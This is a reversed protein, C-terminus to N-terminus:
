TISSSESDSNRLIKNSDESMGLIIKDITDLKKIKPKNKAVLYRTNNCIDNLFNIVAVLYVKEKTNDMWQCNLDSSLIIDAVDEPAELIDKCHHLKHQIQNKQKTMNDLQKKLEVIEHINDHNKKQLDQLNKNTTKLQDSLYKNRETQEGSCIQILNGM